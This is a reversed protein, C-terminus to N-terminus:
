DLRELPHKMIKAFSMMKYVMCFVIPFIRPISRLLAQFDVHLSWFIYSPSGNLMMNLWHFMKKPNKPVFTKNQNYKHCHIMQKITFTVLFTYVISITSFSSFCFIFCHFYSFDVRRLYGIVINRATKEMLNKLNLTNLCIDLTSNM